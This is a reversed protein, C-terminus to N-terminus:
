LTFYHNKVILMKQHQADFATDALVYGNKRALLPIFREIAHALTGDKQGAEPEFDADSLSLLMLPELVEMRAYFMSGAPFLLGRMLAADVASKTALSKVQLANAGYYLWMPLIHGEPGIMGIEPYQEFTKWIRDIVGVGLLKNFLDASWKAPRNLHNSKKTHLKLVLDFGETKVHPLMMLFPLMDRGKNEVTLLKYHMGAAKLLIDTQNHNQASTSVFLKLGHKSNQGIMALIEALVDPYFAHIVIALKEIQAPNSTKKANVAQYFRSLLTKSLYQSDTRLNGPHFVRAHSWNQYIAWNKFLPKFSHFLVSKLLEKKPRNVPLYRWVVDFDFVKAEQSDNM